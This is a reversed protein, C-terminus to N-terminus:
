RAGRLSQRQLHLGRRRCQRVRAGGKCVRPRQGLSAPSPSSLGDLDSLHRDHRAHTSECSRQRSRLGPPERSPRYRDQDSVRRSREASGRSPASGRFYLAPPEKSGIELQGCDAWTAIASLQTYKNVCDVVLDEDYAYAHVSQVGAYQSQIYEKMRELEAANSSEIPHMELTNLQCRCRGGRVSATAFASSRCSRRHFQRSRDPRNWTWDVVTSRRALSKISEM